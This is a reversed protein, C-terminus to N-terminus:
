PGVGIRSLVGALNVAEYNWEPHFADGKIDLTKM